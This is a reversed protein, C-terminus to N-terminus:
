SYCDTLAILLALWLVFSAIVLLYVGKWKRPWPLGTGENERATPGTASTDKM